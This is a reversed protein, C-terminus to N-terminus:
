REGLKIHAFFHLLMLLRPLPMALTNAEGSVVLLFRIQCAFAELLSLTPPAPALPLGGQEITCTSVCGNRAANGRAGTGM